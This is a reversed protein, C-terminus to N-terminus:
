GRNCFDMDVLYVKGGDNRVLFEIRRWHPESIGEVTVREMRSERSCAIRHGPRVKIAQESSM